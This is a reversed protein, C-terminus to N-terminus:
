RFVPASPESNPLDRGSTAGVYNPWSTDIKAQIPRPEISNPVAEVSDSGIDAFHPAMDTM